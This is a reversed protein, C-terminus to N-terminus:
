NKIPIPNIVYCFGTERNCNNSLDNCECLKAKGIAVDIWTVNHEYPSPFYRFYGTNPNQCSTGEYEKPCECIEISLARPPPKGSTDKAVDVSVNSLRPILM